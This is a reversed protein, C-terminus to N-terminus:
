TLSKKKKGIPPHIFEVDIGTRKELDKIFPLENKSSVQGAVNPNLPEWITLKKDTAIPYSIEGTAIGAIASQEETKEGCGSMMSISIVGVLLTCVFKIFSKKM